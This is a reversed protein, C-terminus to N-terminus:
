NKNASQRALFLYPVFVLRIDERAKDAYFPESKSCGKM